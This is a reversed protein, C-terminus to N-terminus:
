RSKKAVPSGRRICSTRRRRAPPTRARSALSRRRPARRDPPSRRPPNRRRTREPHRDGVGDDRASPPRFRAQRQDFADLGFQDLLNVTADGRSSGRGGPARDPESPDPDVVELPDVEVQRQVPQDDQGADAARALARQGEVREVGLALPAVDLGERGVGALEELREVLGVGVPDVADGRGDGDGLPTARRDPRLVTPM